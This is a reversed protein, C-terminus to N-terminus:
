ESPGVFCLPEPRCAPHRQLKGEAPMEIAIDRFQRTAVVFTHGRSCGEARGDPILAGKQMETPYDLDLKLANQYRKVSIALSHGFQSM